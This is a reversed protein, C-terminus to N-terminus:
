EASHKQLPAVFLQWYNFYYKEIAILKLIVIALSSDVSRFLIFLM